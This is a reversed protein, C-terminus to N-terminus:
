LWKYDNMWKWLGECINVVTQLREDVKMFNINVSITWLLQKDVEMLGECINYIQWSWLSLKGLRETPFM